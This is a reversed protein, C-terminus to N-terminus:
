AGRPVLARYSVLSLISAAAMSAALPWGISTPLLTSLQAAVGASGFQLASLLGSAAGAREPAASVAGSVAGPMAIGAGFASLAAGLILVYPSELGLYLPAASAAGAFASFAAGGIIARRAGIREIVRGSLFNAASFSGAITLFLVGFAAGSVGYAREMVYPAGGVFLFFSAMSFSVHAAHAVFPRRRIISSYDTLVSAVSLRPSPVRLSEELRLWILAFMAVCLLGILAFIARWGLLDLALGGILPAFMPAIVMIGTIRSILITAERFEFLDRAVARALVLGAGAGVSQLIRGLLVVWYADSLAALLSGFAAAALGWLMVPRRGYRDAFPGYFISGAALSWMSLSVLLLTAEESVALQVSLTPTAPAISQLAFPGIATVAALLLTLSLGPAPARISADTM